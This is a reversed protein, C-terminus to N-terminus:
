LLTQITITTKMFYRVIVTGGKKKGRVISIFYHSVFLFFQDYFLFFSLLEIKFNTKKERKGEEEGAAKLLNGPRSEPM